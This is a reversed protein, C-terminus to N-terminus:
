ARDQKTIIRGILLKDGVAGSYGEQLFVAADSTSDTGTNNVENEDTLVMRQYNHSSNANNTSSVEYLDDPDAPRYLVSTAATTITEEAVGAIDEVSSSSTAKILTGASRSYALLDGITIALSSTVGKRNGIDRGSIRKFGHAM